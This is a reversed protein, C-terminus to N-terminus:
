ISEKLVGNAKACSLYSLWCEETHFDEYYAQPNYGTQKDYNYTNVEEFQKRLENISLQKNKTKLKNLIIKIYAKDNTDIDVIEEIIELVYDIEKM